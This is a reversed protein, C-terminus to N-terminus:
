WLLYLRLERIGGVKRKNEWYKALQYMKLVNGEQLLFNEKKCNMNGMKEGLGLKALSIYFRESYIESKFMFCHVTTKLFKNEGKKDWEWWKNGLDEGEEREGTKRWKSVAYGGFSEQSLLRPLYIKFITCSFIDKKRGEYRILLKVLYLIGPEFYNPRLVKFGCRRAKFTVM